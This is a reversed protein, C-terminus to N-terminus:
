APMIARLEDIATTHITSEGSWIKFGNYEPPNHSATVMVGARRGLAKVAYYFAPSPVMGLCTVDIGTAALGAALRAQYKPSTLRCDHGLVAQTDGRRAFFTGCARGLYEVWDPDFDLDVKGRIDYARFVGPSVPKM